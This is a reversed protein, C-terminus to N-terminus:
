ELYYLCLRLNGPSLFALFNLGRVHDAEHRVSDAKERCFGGSPRRERRRRASRKWCVLSSAAQRGSGCPVGTSLRDAAASDRRWDRAVQAQSGRGRERVGPREEGRGVGLDGVIAAAGRGGQEAKSESRQRSQPVDGCPFNGAPRQHQPLLEGRENYKLEETTVWGMGQIFGGIVQGRDIGPNISMGIDMLLDVRTVKMEGTFRDIRVEAAAAGNTYYLFPHGKGTERNFDVGPTAYFGREGLSIREIYARAILERWAISREPRRGDFVRGEAFCMATPEPALGDASEALLTAALRSLRDKIRGTADLAAAGNLDTGSSAATPSTNNNKETSTAAVIVSDYDVGLDDAVLQRVRTNVGQGMETGGTSVMVTGDLYVNVLANAQNLKRNTFSIGFKVGTMALGRLVGQDKANETAIEARRRDYESTKRLQTFIAPLMNNQVIQGYPTRDREGIGYCNLSRIEAADRGLVHAIEEIINETVAAGQPGGFGRFATNSPYNTKCVQGTIRANPLYYANDSHLMARELISPSLDTTCGGDSYHDVMLA